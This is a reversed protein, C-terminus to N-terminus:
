SNIIEQLKRVIEQNYEEASFKQAEYGNKLFEKMGEYVGKESNENVIGYKDKIDKKSDSVDTTVIPKGLILAEIFVVPYGEFQSSMLLCDSVKLYPFPNKKTGLFEINKLNKAMNQYQKTDTGKGILVVNFKYGEKNLKRTANIIRSIRKQKEDHRSINIFTIDKKRKFDDIKEESKELITKYDILNHCIEAKKRYQPFEAGFIQKDLNSVFIIKKFKDIQLENFFKKYLMVENNYFNMYDNHVWLASNKSTCRAVFSCPFSYTAYSASFDFKNGYQLKFKIQKLLNIAKRFLIIKHSSPTYEIIKVNEPVESLFAGQKKELVLTIEYEKTKALYKILTILATEIGGYDLSYASFLIKKM